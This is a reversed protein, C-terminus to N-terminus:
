SAITAARDASAARARVPSGKSGSTVKPGRILWAGGRVLHLAQQGSQGAVCPHRGPAPAEIPRPEEVLRGDHGVHALVVLDDLLLDEPRDDGDLGECGLRLRQGHGVVDGLTQAGTDPRRIVPPGFPHAPTEVETCHRDVGM